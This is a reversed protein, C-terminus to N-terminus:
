LDIVRPMRPEAQLYGSIPRKCSSAHRADIGRELMFAPKLLQLHGAPHKITRGARGHWQRIVRRDTDIVQSREAFKEFGRHSRLTLIQYFRLM